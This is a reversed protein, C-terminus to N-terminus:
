EVEKHYKAKVKKTIHVPRIRAENYIDAMTQRQADSLLSQSPKPEVKVMPKIFEHVVEHGEGKLEKSLGKLRGIERKLTNISEQQHKRITDKYGKSRRLSREQEITYTLDILQIQLMEAEAKLTNAINVSGGYNRSNGSSVRQQQKHGSWRCQQPKRTDIAEKHVSNARLAQRQYSLKNDLLESPTTQM